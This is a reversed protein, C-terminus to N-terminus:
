LTNIVIRHHVRYMEQFDGKTEKCFNLIMSLYRKACHSIFDCCLMYLNKILVSQGNTVWDSLILRITWWIKVVQLLWFTSLKRESCWIDLLIKGSICFNRSLKRFIVFDNYSVLIYFLLYAKNFWCINIIIYKQAIVNIKDSRTM